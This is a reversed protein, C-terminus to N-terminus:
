KAWEFQEVVEATLLLSSRPQVGLARARALSIAPLGKTTARMPLQSPAVGDVLIARALRGAALGQERESVTVAALTGYHVRDIWFGLDPLRSNEATWRLVEQYPVNRGSADKFSFIGILAIADAIGHYARVQAQYQEFSRIVDWAVFEVGPLQALSQKMRQQVPAWMPADDFVVALRRAGPYMAHLLRVSEVFHEQELVGTVNRSGTFGYAAPDKNVGSFVIPIRSNVYHRAVHEQADDDSTYILNPQWQEILARAERGRAEMQAPTSFHKTDMEFVRTEIAVGRLAEKFGHWQGDTWRWPSHYSMVHLIKFPPRQAEVPQACAPGALVLIGCWLAAWLNVLLKLM